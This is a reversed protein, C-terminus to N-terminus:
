AAPEAVVEGTEPDFLPVREDPDWWGEAPGHRRWAALHARREEEAAARAALGRRYHEREQAHRERRKAAHDVGDPAPMEANPRTLAARWHIRDVREALGHAALHGLARRITVLSLGTSTALAAVTTEQDVDLLQTLRWANSRRHWVDLAPSSPLRAKERCDSAYAVPRHRNDRNQASRVAPRWTTSKPGTPSGPKVRHVARLLGTREIDGGRKLLPWVTSTSMGGAEGVQRVSMSLDVKGVAMGALAVAALVRLLTSGRSKPFAALDIAEWWDLWRLRADNADAVDRWEPATRPNKMGHQLGWEVTKRVTSEDLRLGRGARCLAEYVREYRLEDGGVLSGM